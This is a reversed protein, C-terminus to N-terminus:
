AKHKFIYISNGPPPLKYSYPATMTTIKYGFYFSSCNNVRPTEFSQSDYNNNVATNGHHNTIQDLGSSLLCQAGVSADSAITNQTQISTDYCQPIVFYHKPISLALEAPWIQIYPHNRQGHYHQVFCNHNLFFSIFYFLIMFPESNVDYLSTLIFILFSKKYWGRISLGLVLFINLFSLEIFLYFRFTKNNVFFPFAISIFSYTPKILLWSLNKLVVEDM